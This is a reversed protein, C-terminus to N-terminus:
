ERAPTTRERRASKWVQRFESWVLMAAVAVSCFATISWGWSPADNGLPSAAFRCLWYAFCVAAAVLAGGFGGLAVLKLGRQVGSPLRSIGLAVVGGGLALLLVLLGQGPKASFYAVGENTVFFEYVDHAMLGGILGLGLTLLLRRM